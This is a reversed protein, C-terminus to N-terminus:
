IAAFSWLVVYRHTYMWTLSTMSTNSARVLRCWCMKSFLNQMYPKAPKMKTAGFLSGLNWRFTTTTSGLTRTNPQMFDRQSIWNICSDWRDLSHICYFIIYVIVFPCSSSSVASIDYSKNSFRARKSSQLGVRLNCTITTNTTSKHHLWPCEFIDLTTNTVEM